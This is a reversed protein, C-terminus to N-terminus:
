DFDTQYYEPIILYKIYKPSNKIFNIAHDEDHFQELYELKHIYKSDRYGDSKYKENVKYVNYRKNM